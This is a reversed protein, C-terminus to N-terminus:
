CSVVCIIKLYNLMKGTSLCLVLQLFLDRLVCIIKGGSTHSKTPILPRRESADTPRPVKSKKVEKLVEFDIKDGIDGYNGSVGNENLFEGSSDTGFDPMLYDPQQLNVGQAVSSRYQYPATPSYFSPPTMIMINENNDSGLEQDRPVAGAAAYGILPPMTPSKAEASSIMLDKDTDSWVFDDQPIQSGTGANALEDVIWDREDDGYDNDESDYPIQSRLMEADSAQYRNEYYAKAPSQMPPQMPAGSLDDNGIAGLPIEHLQNDKFAEPNIVDEKNSLSGSLLGAKDLDERLVDSRKLSDNENSESDDVKANQDDFISELEASPESVDVSGKVFDDKVLSRNMKLGSPDKAGNEPLTELRLEDGIKTTKDHDVNNTRLTVMPLTTHEM